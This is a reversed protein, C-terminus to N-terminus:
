KPGLDSGIVNGYVRGEKLNGTAMPQGMGIEVLLVTPMKNLLSFFSAPLFGLGWISSLLGKIQFTTLVVGLATQIGVNKL